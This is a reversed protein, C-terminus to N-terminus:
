SWNGYKSNNLMVVNSSNPALLPTIFKGASSEPASNTNDYIYLDSGDASHNRYTIAIAAMPM